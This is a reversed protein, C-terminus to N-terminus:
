KKGSEIMERFAELRTKLQGTDEKGLDTKISIFPIQKEKMIMRMISTQIDFVQCLRLTYYVVGDLNYQFVTDVILNALKELNLLCPCISGAINKLTLARIIGNETDEDINVPNFFRGFSTCQIDAAVSLGAQGLIDLIKFNPFIVPAGALLIKPKKNLINKNADTYVSEALTNWVDIDMFFSAYIMIFYDFASISDPNQARIQYIKRFIETRANTKKCASLLQKRGPNIKYREKLFNFFETYREEWTNVNKLYDSDRGPDLFYVDKVPSILEALKTKPDCSGPVVVLDLWDYIKNYFKGCVSKVVFCVDGSSVEEGAQTWFYDQCCLRFPHLRCALLIEEPVLSCFFGVVPKESDIRNKKEFDYVQKYFKEMSPNESKKSYKELESLNNDKFTKESSFGKLIEKNYHSIFKKM